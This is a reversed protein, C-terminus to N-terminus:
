RWHSTYHARSPGCNKLSQEMWDRCFYISLGYKLWRRPDFYAYFWCCAEYWCWSLFHGGAHLNKQSLIRNYKKAIACCGRTPWPTMITAAHNCECVVNPPVGRTSQDARRLCRLRVLCEFCVVMRRATNPGAFLGHAAYRTNSRAAV